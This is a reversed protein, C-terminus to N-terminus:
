RKVNIYKGIRRLIVKKTNKVEISFIISVVTLAEIKNKSGQRLIIQQNIRNGLTTIKNKIFIEKILRRKRNQISEKAIWDIRKTKQRFSGNQRQKDVWTILDKRLARSNWGLSRQNLEKIPNRKSYFYRQNKHNIIQENEM